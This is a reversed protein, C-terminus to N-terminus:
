VDLERTHEGCFHVFFFSELTLPVFKELGSVLPNDWLIHDGSPKCVAIDPHFGTSIACVMLRDIDVFQKLHRNVM